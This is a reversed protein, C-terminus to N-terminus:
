EKNLGVGELLLKNGLGLTDQLGHNEVKVSSTVGLHIVVGEAKSFEQIRSIFRGKTKYFHTKGSGKIHRELDRGSSTNSCKGM